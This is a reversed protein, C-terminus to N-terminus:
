RSLTLSQFLDGLSPSTVRNTLSLIKQRLNATDKEPYHKIYLALTVIRGMQEGQGIWYIPEFLDFMGIVKLSPILQDIAAVIAKIEQECEQSNEQLLLQNLRAINNLTAAVTGKRVEGSEQTYPNVSITQDVGDRLITQPTFPAAMGQSVWAITLASMAFLKCIM